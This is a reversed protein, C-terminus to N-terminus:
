SAGGEGARRAAMAVIGVSVVSLAALFARPSTVLVALCVVAVGLLAPVQRSADRGDDRTTLSLVGAVAAGVLTAVVPVGLWAERPSATSALAASLLGFGGVVLALAVSQAVSQLSPPAGALDLLWALRGAARTLPRGLTTAALGMVALAVGFALRVYYSAEEGPNNRCALYTAAAGLLSLGFARGVAARDARHAAVLMASVVAPFRGLGSVAHRGEGPPSPAARFANVLAVAALGVLIPSAAPHPVLWWAVLGLAGVVLRWVGGFRWWLGGQALLVAALAALALLPGGGRLWLGVWGLHLVVLGAVGLGGLGAGSIPFARLVELQEDAFLVRAAPLTLIAWGVLLVLRLRFSRSAEAVVDAADMGNGAFLIAAGLLVMAYLPLALYLGRKGATKAYTRGIRWPTALM